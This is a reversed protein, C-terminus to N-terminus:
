TWMRNGDALLIVTLLLMLVVGTLVEVVTQLGTLVGSALSGSPSQLYGV